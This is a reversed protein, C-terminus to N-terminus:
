LSWRDGPELLEVPPRSGALRRVAEAVERRGSRSVHVLGLREPVVEPLLDLLDGLSAHGGAVKERSFCEHIWHAGRGLSASEATPAGDGSYAVRTGGMIGVRLALNPLGHNTPASELSLGRWEVAGGPEVALEELPFRLRSSFGPYGTELLGGAAEAIGRPGLIRLPDTRGEEWMRVLLAPLGIAHDAHLHSLWIGHLPEGSGLERWVLPPVSFGCDLLLNASRTRLLLSTNPYAEDFAEGCGLVTLSDGLEQPGTAQLDDQM